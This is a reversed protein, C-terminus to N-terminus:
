LAVRMTRAAPSRALSTVGSQQHEQCSYSSHNLQHQTLPVIVWLALIPKRM